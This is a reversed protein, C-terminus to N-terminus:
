PNMGVRISGISEPASTCEASSRMRISSRSRATRQKRCRARVIPSAAHARVGLLYAQAPHGELVPDEDMAVAVPRRGHAAGVALHLQGRAALGVQGGHHGPRREQTAHGPHELDGVQQGRDLAAQRLGAQRHLRRAHARRQGPRRQEGLHDPAGPQVRRRDLDHRRAGREKRRHHRQAARADGAVVAGLVLRDAAVLLVAGGDVDGLLVLAAARVHDARQQDRAGGAVQEDRPQRGRATARGAQHRAERGHARRGLRERPHRAM